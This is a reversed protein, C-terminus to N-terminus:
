NEDKKKIEWIESDFYRVGCNFRLKVAVTIALLYTPILKLM